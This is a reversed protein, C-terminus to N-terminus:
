VKNIVWLKDIQTLPLTIKDDFPSIILINVNGETDSIMQQYRMNVYFEVPMSDKISFCIIDNRLLFKINEKIVNRIM